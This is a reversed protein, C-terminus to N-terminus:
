QITGFGAAAYQQAWLLQLEPTQPGSAKRRTLYDKLGKLRKTRDFAM